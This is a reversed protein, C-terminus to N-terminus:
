VHPEKSIFNLNYQSSTSIATIQPYPYTYYTRCKGCGPCVGPSYTNTLSLNNTNM